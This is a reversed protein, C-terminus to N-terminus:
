LEGPNQQLWADLVAESGVPLHLGLKSRRWLIDHATQAWEECRLYAIERAFLGPLVLEGLDFLSTADGLLRAIRSGYARAYRRRLDSPLWAYRWRLSRLFKAFDADPLDGGPLPEHSTSCAARRGFHHAILDLSEEALRRYTTLKGGFVSLLPPGDTNLELRYDRTVSSLKASQDDLLPRVGAYSWVVSKPSLQQKFYNNAMQCLYLTEDDSIQVKSPDGLYEMDTTGILTFKQEYPIAFIVRKDVAQFIYAYSHDFLRPVVIHSGKVLRVQSGAPRQAVTALFDAVWPGTANVVMRARLAFPEGIAPRLTAIWQNGEIELQECRTGTLVVAGREVADVANLVVLRADDVWGDSYIFGRRYNLKLSSGVIHTRLDITRSGPLYRRRALNDYLLLGLRIMWAPRLHAAHPIVFRLPWMIHPAMSILVERERLAKSVLRLEFHELYRLGGHVLKTSASSTHAAIDHQECLVVSFGRGVADRAIGAGNIGGGVVLLDCEAPPAEHAAHCPIQLGPFSM